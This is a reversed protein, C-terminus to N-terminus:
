VYQSMLERLAYEEHYAEYAHSTFGMSRHYPCVVIYVRTLLEGRSSLASTSVSSGESGRHAIFLQVLRGTMISGTIACYPPSVTTRCAPVQFAAANFPAPGHAM